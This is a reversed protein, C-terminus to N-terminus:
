SLTKDRGVVQTEAGRIILLLGEKYRRDFKDFLIGGAQRLLPLDADRLKASREALDYLPSREGPLPFVAQEELVFSVTYNYVTSLLVTTQRITFGDEIVRGSIREVTKMYDIGTLRTGAVMRAGDRYALLVQRLGSGFATVWTAWDAKERAPLLQPSGNALVATAMADLLEDKSKFHWYLTPAKVELEDALLRLTLSELGVRNLLTLAAVTVIERNVKM